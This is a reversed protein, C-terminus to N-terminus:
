LNQSGWGGPARPTQEPRYHSLKEKWSKDRVKSIVLAASSWNNCIKTEMIWSTMGVPCSKSFSFVRLNSTRLLLVAKRQKTKTVILIIAWSQIRLRYHSLWRDRYYIRSAENDKSCLCEYLGVHLLCSRGYGASSDCAGYVSSKKRYFENEAPLGCTFKDYTKTHKTVSSSIEFEGLEHCVQTMTIGQAKCLGNRGVTATFYRSGSLIGVNVRLRSIDYIYIHLM